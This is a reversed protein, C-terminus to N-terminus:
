VKGCTCKDPRLEIVEDVMESKELTTGPHGPQGGNKGSKKRSFASKIKIDHKDRSPPLHSNNSNQNLQRRLEKNEQELSSVKMSLQANEQRLLTVEERLSKIEEQSKLFLQLIHKYPEIVKNTRKLNDNSM